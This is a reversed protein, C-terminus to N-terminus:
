RGAGVTPVETKYVIPSVAMPGCTLAAAGWSWGVGFGVMLLKMPGKNLKSALRHSVTLPISASSTNGFDELSLLIKEPPIKMSKALHKLMFLNAQHPVVADVDSLDWHALQLVDKFLQPVRKLTFSFVEAGDMSLDLENRPYGDQGAIRELSRRSFPNRSGGGPVILSNKGSGDTGLVFQMEAADDTQELATVTSCDGFLFGTAGDLPSCIRSITDGVVLLARKASGSSLLTSALWLGYVYGSCGLCVDFAACRDSLGIREQLVCATAPLQYDHTQSVVVLIDISDKQWGLDNLLGEAADVAMDSMCMSPAAVHRQKVGTMNAVKLSQEESMGMATGTQAATLSTSPVASAIGALRVRTVTALM